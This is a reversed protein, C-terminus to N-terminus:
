RYNQLDDVVQRATSDSVGVSGRLLRVYASDLDAVTVAEIVHSAHGRADEPDWQGVAEGAVHITLFGKKTQMSVGPTLSLPWEHEPTPRDARMSSVFQVADGEDLALKLTMQALAAADYEAYAAMAHVYSAYRMASDPDFAFSVDNSAELTVVYKSGDLTPETKVWVSTPEPLDSRQRRGKKGM